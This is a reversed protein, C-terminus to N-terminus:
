ICALPGPSIISLILPLAAVYTCLHPLTCTHLAMHRESVPLTEVLQTSHVAFCHSIKKFLPPGVGLGEVDQKFSANTKSNGGIFFQSSLKNHKNTLTGCNAPNNASPFNPFKFYCFSEFGLISHFVNALDCGKFDVAM